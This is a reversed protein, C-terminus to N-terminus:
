EGARRGNRPSPARRSRRPSSPTRRWTAGHSKRSGGTCRVEVSASWSDGGAIARGWADFYHMDSQTWRHLHLCPGAALEDHVAWRVTAAVLALSVLVLARWRRLLRECRSATSMTLVISSARVALL